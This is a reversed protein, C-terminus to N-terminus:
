ADGPRARDFIAGGGLEGAVSHTEFVAATECSMKTQERAIVSMVGHTRANMHGTYPASSREGLAPKIALAGSRCLCKAFRTTTQKQM